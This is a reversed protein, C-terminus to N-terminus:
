VACDPRLVQLHGSHGSQLHPRLRLCHRSLSLPAGHAVDGGPQGGVRPVGQSGPLQQHHLSRQGPCYCHLSGSCGQCCGQQDRQDEAGDLPIRHRLHLGDRGRTHCHWPLPRPQVTRGVSLPRRVRHPLSLLLEVHRAGAQGSLSPNWFYILFHPIKWVQTSGPLLTHCVFKKSKPKLVM